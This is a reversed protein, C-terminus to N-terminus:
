ADDDESAIDAEFFPTSIKRIKGADWTAIIEFQYSDLFAGFCSRAEDETFESFDTTRANELWHLAGSLAKEFAHDAATTM